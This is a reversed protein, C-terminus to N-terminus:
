GSLGSSKATKEGSLWRARDVVAIRPLPLIPAHLSVAGSRRCGTATCKGPLPLPGSPDFSHLRQRPQIAEACAASGSRTKTATTASCAFVIGVSARDCEPLNVFLLAAQTSPPEEPARRADCRSRINYDGDWQVRLGGM